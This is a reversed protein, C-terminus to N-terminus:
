PYDSPRGDYVTFVEDAAKEQWYINRKAPLIRDALRAAQLFKLAGAPVDGFLGRVPPCALRRLRRTSPCFWDKESHKPDNEGIM